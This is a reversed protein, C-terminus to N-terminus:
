SSRRTAAGTGAAMAELCALEQGNFGAQTRAQLHLPPKIQGRMYQEVLRVFTVEPGLGRAECLFRFWRTGIAVHAIEDRHIVELVSVSELDGVRALREILGPTVDLGRAELVRPVLAMRVLPDHATKCAMEWLGDHADLEGYHSGLSQLRHQLLRFHRAEEVAVRAWDSYFAPPLGRFRYVADWALNVANFEIHALSHLLGVRGARSGLRRRPLERPAVLRPRTPRGPVPIAVPEEGPKLDIDGSRLAAYVADSMQCKADPDPCALCAFARRFLNRDTV